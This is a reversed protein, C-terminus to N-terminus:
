RGDLVCYGPELKVTHPTQWGYDGYQEAVVILDGHAEIFKQLESILESARFETRNDYKPVANM